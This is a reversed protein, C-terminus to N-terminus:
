DPVADEPMVLASTPKRHSYPRGRIPFRGATGALDHSRMGNTLRMFSMTLHDFSAKSATALCPSATCNRLIKPMLASRAMFSAQACPAGPQAGFAGDVTAAFPQAAGFM